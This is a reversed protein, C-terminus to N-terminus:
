IPINVSLFTWPLSNLLQDSTNNLNLKVKVDKGFLNLYLGMLGFKEGTGDVHKNFIYPVVGKSNLFDVVSENKNFENQVLKTQIEYNSLLSNEIDKKLGSDIKSYNLQTLPVVLDQIKQEYLSKIRKREDETIVFKM